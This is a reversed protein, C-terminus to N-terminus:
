FTPTASTARRSPTLAPNPNPNLCPKHSPCPCPTPSRSRSDSRSRRSALARGVGDQNKYDNATDIHTFGLKLGLSVVSEALSSNYQWTGSLCAPAPSSVHPSQVSSSSALSHASAPRAALKSTACWTFGDAHAGGARDRGDASSGCCSGGYGGAYSADRRGRRLHPARARTCGAALGRANSHARVFTTSVPLVSRRRM